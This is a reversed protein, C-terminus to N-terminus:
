AWASARGLSDLYAQKINTRSVYFDTPIEPSSMLQQRRLHAALSFGKRHPGTKESKKAKSSSLAKLPERVTVDLYENILRAIGLNLSEM